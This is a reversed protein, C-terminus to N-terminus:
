SIWLIQNFRNFNHSSYKALHCLNNKKISDHLEISAKKKPKSINRRDKISVESLMDTVAYVLIALVMGWLFFELVKKFLKKRKKKISKEKRISIGDTIFYDQAKEFFNKTKKKRSHRRRRIPTNDANIEEM